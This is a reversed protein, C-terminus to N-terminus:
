YDINLKKMKEYLSSRHIGLLRAAKSVNGNAIRIAQFIAHREAEFVIDRLPIVSIEHNAKIRKALYVPLHEERIEKGGCIAVAREIVNRLERVNGPWPYSFFIDLVRPNISIDGRGQDECIERIFHKVLLPIDEKRERLPPLYISFVNLRYYLDLRFQKKRVLFDLDQNTAAILRFNVKIPRLGGIREMEREELVRLVKAQMEPSMDGVEDLFLTGHNALEFKGPKGHKSAGTFAGPEYGFLESELLEKPIAACNVRVFPKYRRPSANHIAHAFVEKGTGSEGLLLVTANTEAAKMALIKANVISPSKGIINDFTYKSSKLSKLEREYYEVKSQLLNLRSALERVEEIDRFMVQGVAGVIQGNIRIPIRQVIMDQGKIRQRWGIEPVGSKVVIHMRTNEIVETVHKGLIEEKKIGLFEEYTKNFFVVRGERDVVIIGFYIHDLIIDYPIM